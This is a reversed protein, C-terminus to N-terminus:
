KHWCFIMEDYEAIYVQSTRHGLIAELDEAIGIHAYICYYGDDKLGAWTKEIMTRVQATLKPLRFFVMDYQYNEYNTTLSESITHTIDSLVQCDANPNLIIRPQIFDKMVQSHHYVRAEVQEM